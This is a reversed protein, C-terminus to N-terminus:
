DDKLGIAFLREHERKLEEPSLEPPKAAAEVSGDRHFPSLRALLALSVTPPPWRAWQKTLEHYDTWTM